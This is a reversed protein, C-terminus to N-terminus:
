EGFVVYCFKEELFGFFFLWFKDIMRNLLWLSLKNDLCDSLFLYEVFCNCIKYNFLICYLYVVIM